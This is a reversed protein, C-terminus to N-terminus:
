TGSSINRSASRSPRARPPTISLVKRTTPAEGQAAMPAATWSSHLPPPNSMPPSGEGDAPFPSAPQRRLRPHFSPSAPQAHSPLREWRCPFPLRAAKCPFLAKGVEFDGFTNTATDSITPTTIFNFITRGIRERLLLLYYVTLLPREESTMPCGRRLLLCYTTLLSRM